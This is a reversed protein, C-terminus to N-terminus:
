VAESGTHAQHRQLWFEASQLLQNQESESLDGGYALQDLLQGSGDHFQATGASKDLFRHWQEGSLAAVIERPWASLATRKLLGPLRQLSGDADSRIEELEALALRRYRNSQWRRWGFITLGILAAVLIGAVFYWAPAWPWWSVGGPVVIDNLNQLSATDTM